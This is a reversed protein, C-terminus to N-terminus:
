VFRLAKGHIIRYKYVSKATEKFFVIYARNFAISNYDKFQTYRSQRIASSSSSLLDCFSILKEIYREATEPSQKEFAIYRYIDHLNNVAGQKWKVTRKEM